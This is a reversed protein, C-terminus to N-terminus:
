QFKVVLAFNRNATAILAPIDEPCVLAFAEMSVMEEPTWGLVDFSSPSVYRFRMDLGCRCIIDASYKTLLQFDTDDEGAM